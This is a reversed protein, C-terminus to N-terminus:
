FVGFFGWQRCVLGKGVTAYNTRDEETQVQDQPRREGAIARLRDYQEEFATWAKEVSSIRRQLATTSTPNTTLTEMQRILNDVKAKLCELTVQANREDPTAM